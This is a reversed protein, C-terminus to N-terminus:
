LQGSGYAVLRISGRHFGGAWTAFGVPGWIPGLQAPLQAGTPCGLQPGDIKPVPCIDPGLRALGFQAGVPGWGPGLLCIFQVRLKNTHM